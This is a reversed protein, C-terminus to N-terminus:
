LLKWILRVGFAILGVGSLRNLWVLYNPRIFKKLRAAGWAKLLDTTFVTLLAMAFFLITYNPAHQPGTAVSGAVGIWFILVFPNFLNLAFGKPLGKWEAMTKGHDITEMQVKPKRLMTVIGFAMLIVGGGIGIAQQHGEMFRITTSSYYAILIFFADSLM